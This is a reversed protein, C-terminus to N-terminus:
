EAQDLYHIDMELDEIRQEIEAFFHQPKHPRWAIGNFAEGMYLHHQLEHAEMENEVHPLLNVMCIWGGEEEISEAWEEYYCDDSGHFNLVQENILIFKHIGADMLVDTVQERLHMIDNHLTDNWEGIMELIAFAKDYNAYLIKLYLTESGFEDWQPHILHDYIKNEFYFESYERGFFPSSEDESAIYEDRWRFYPEITHM